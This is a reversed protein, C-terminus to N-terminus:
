ELTILAANQEVVQGPAVLVSEVIGARPARIENEMKMASLALMGAGAAVQDGPQVRVTVVVGPMPAKVTVKGTDVRDKRQITALRRQWEDQVRIHFLGGGGVLVRYEEDVREVLVEHSHQDILLSLLAPGAVQKLDITYTSDGLTALLLDGQEVFQVDIIEGDVEVYYKM